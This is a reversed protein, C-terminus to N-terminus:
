EEVPRPKDRKADVICFFGFPSKGIARLQHTQEPGIYIADFPRLTYRRSGVRVSGRGRVGIVVHSHHHRELSTFGRPELEFYRVHFKVREARKGVLVQRSAGRFEGGRHAALKYPELEVGSWRFNASFRRLAQDIHPRSTGAARKREAAL